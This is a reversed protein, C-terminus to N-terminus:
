KKTPLGIKDTTATTLYVNSVLALITAIGYAIANTQSEDIPFGAFQAGVGIIIVLANMSNQVNKWRAPDKLSEGARLANGAAFMKELLNM